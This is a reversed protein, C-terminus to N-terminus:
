YRLLRTEEDRRTLKTELESNQGALAEVDGELAKVNYKYNEM